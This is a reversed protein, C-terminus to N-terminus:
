HCHSSSKCRTGTKEGCAELFDRAAQQPTMAAYKANDPLRKLEGAWSAGAPLDFHFLAPDIPQNYEIQTTEFVLVDGSKTRIYIQVGELQNTQQDFRYVSRLDAYDFSKNKLYDNDPVSSKSEITVVSEARGDAAQQQAVEAKWGKHWPPPSIAKSQGAQAPLSRFGIRTM